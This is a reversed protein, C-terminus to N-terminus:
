VDLLLDCNKKWEFLLKPIFIIFIYSFHIDWKEYRLSEGKTLQSIIELYFRNKYSSFSIPFGRPKSWLGFMDRGSRDDIASSPCNKHTCNCPRCGQMRLQRTYSSEAFHERTKAMTIPSPDHAMYVHIYRWCVGSEHDERFHYLIVDKLQLSIKRPINSLCVPTEASNPSEQVYLQQSFGTLIFSSFVRWTNTNDSTPLAHKDSLSLNGITKLVNLATHLM